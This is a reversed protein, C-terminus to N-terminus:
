GKVALKELIFRLGEENNSPAVLDAAQKVPVPANDMAVGLGAFELLDVDNFNDGFAISESQKIDLYDCLFGAAASKSSEASMIELYRPLSKFISCDPFEARLVTQLEDMLKEDGTCLLKHVPDDKGLVDQPKGVLPKLATTEKELYLAATGDDVDTIWHDASFTYSIVKNSFDAIRNHLDVATKLKMRKDWITKGNADRVLAGGYSIYPANLGIKHQINVVSPPMRGSVLIFPVGKNSLKFLHDRTKLPINQKSDLLTGDIDSFIIKYRNM